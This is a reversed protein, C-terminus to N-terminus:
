AVRAATRDLLRMLLDALLVVESAETPDAYNVQRHSPPNKFTGIAGAFLEMIGVREGPDLEPDALKGGEGFSKRMLKVGILSSESDSLERVRIEVERMAAFAALEYQGLLFQSKVHELRHHLAVDLREAAQIAEPGTQLTKM